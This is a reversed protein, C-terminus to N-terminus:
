RPRRERPGATNGRLRLRTGARRRRARVVVLATLALMVMVGAGAGVVTNLAVSSGLAALLPGGACCAIAVVAVGVAILQAKAGDGRHEDASPGDGM